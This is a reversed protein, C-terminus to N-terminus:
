DRNHQPFGNITASIQYLILDPITDYAFGQSHKWFYGDIQVSDSNSFSPVEIILDKKEDGNIDGMRIGNGGELTVDPTGHLKGPGGFYIFTKRIMEASVAFDDWGDNNVDGLGHMGTGLAMNSDRYVELINTLPDQSFAHASFLTSFLLLLYVRRQPNM